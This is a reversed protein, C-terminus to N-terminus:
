TLILSMKYPFQCCCCASVLISCGSTTYIYACTSSCNKITCITMYNCNTCSYLRGSVGRICSNFCATFSNILHYISCISACFDFICVGCIINNINFMCTHCVLQCGDMAVHNSDGELSLISSTCINNGLVVSNQYAETNHGIAIGYCSSSNACTGIAIGYCSSSNACFGIAVGHSCNSVAFTGIAINNFSSTCSGCALAYFGIAVSDYLAESETGIAISAVMAKTKKGLSVNDTGACAIACFGIAVSTASVGVSGYGITVSCACIKEQRTGIAVAYCVTSTNCCGINKGIIVNDSSNGTLGQATNNGILVNNCGTTINWGTDVGLGFNECGTTLGCLARAGIATNYRGKTMNQLASSGIATNDNNATGCINRLANYGIATNNCGCAGSSGYMAYTGIATNNVGYFSAGAQYGISIGYNGLARATAGIAVTYSYASAYSGANYGISIGYSGVCSSAGIRVCCNCCIAYSDNMKTDLSSCVSDTCCIACKYCNGIKTDLSSCVSNTCCIASNYCNKITTNIASHTSTMLCNIKASSWGKCGSVLSDDLPSQTYNLACDEYYLANSM